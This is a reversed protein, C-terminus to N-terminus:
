ETRKIIQFGAPTQVVPSIEGTKLAFAADAFAKVADKRRFKLPSGQGEAARPEDSYEVALAAFDEGQAARARAKEALQKAEAQTRTLNKRRGLLSKDYAVILQQISIAPDDPGARTRATHTTEPVSAAVVAAATPMATAQAATAQPKRHSDAGGVGCATGSFALLAIGVHGAFASQTRSAENGKSDAM